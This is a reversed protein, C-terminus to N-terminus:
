TKKFIYIPEYKQADEKGSKNLHSRVLRMRFIYIPEGFLDRAMDFMKTYSIGINLAFYKNDKLMHKINKLTNNWYINYFYDEGRNYSQSLDDSYVEYDYYPPSSFAFDISGKDMCFDESCGVKINYDRWGFFNGMENIEEATLPDIGIYKRGCSMAGLARGGFGASFDYVKDGINSYKLYMLRAIVPKFITTTSVLRMSRPGQYMIMKPTINFTELPESDYWGLGLRNEIVRKLKVDNNFIDILKYGKRESSNYFSQRCFYKCIDTCFSSNAYIESSNIDVEYDCLGKYGNIFRKNDLDPYLWQLNRFYLFIPEILEKRQEKGLTSIYAGTLQKGNVEIVRTYIGKNGRTNIIPMKREKNMTNKKLAELFMLLPDTTETTETTEKINDIKDVLSEKKSEEKIIASIDYSERKYAGPFKMKYFVVSDKGGGMNVFKIGNKIGEEYLMVDAYESLGSYDYCLAKGIVYASYGNIDPKSLVGFAILKDGDYIFISIGEKHLNNKFFYKNKGIRSQFHKEGSTDDWRNLIYLIDDFKRYDREITLNLKKCRNICGRIKTYKNGSLSFNEIPIIIDDDRSSKIDFKDKLINIDDDALYYTSFKKFSVLYDLDEVKVKRTIAIQNKGQIVWSCIGNNEKIDKAVSSLFSKWALNNHLFSSM